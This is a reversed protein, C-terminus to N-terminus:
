KALLPRHLCERSRSNTYKDYRIDIGAKITHRGKNWSLDDNLQAHGVDRGVPYGNM